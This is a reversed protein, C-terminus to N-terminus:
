DQETAELAIGATFDASPDERDRIELMVYSTAAGRGYSVQGGNTEDEHGLKWRVYGSLTRRSKENAAQNFRVDSLDAVLGLQIADPITSKRSGNDGLLLCSGGIPITEDQFHYWQVLRVAELTKM